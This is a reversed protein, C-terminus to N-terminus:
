KFGGILFTTETIKTSYILKNAEMTVVRGEVPPDGWGSTGADTEIELFFFRHPMYYLKMDPLLM